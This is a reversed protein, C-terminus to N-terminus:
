LVDEDASLFSQVQDANGEDSTTTYPPASFGLVFGLILTCALVYAPKPLHAEEFIRRLWQMVSLSQNQPLTQARLIIREALDASAAEFRRAKLLTELKEDRSDGM